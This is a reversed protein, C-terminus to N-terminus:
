EDHPGVEGPRGSVAWEVGRVCGREAAVRHGVQERGERPEVISLLAAGCGREEAAPGPVGVPPVPVQGTGPRTAHHVFLLRAEPSNGALVRHGPLSTRARMSRPATM